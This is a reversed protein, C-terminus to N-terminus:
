SRGLEVPTRPAAPRRHGPGGIPLARTGTMTSALSDSIANPVVTALFVFRFTAGAGERSTVTLSGGLLESLRKSIALGLGAGGHQRTSTSDIQSFRQFLRQHM